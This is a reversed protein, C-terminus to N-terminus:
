SALLGPKTHRKAKGYDKLFGLNPGDNAASEVSEGSLRREMYSRSVLYEGIANVEFPIAMRNLARKQAAKQKHGTLRELEDPTLFM